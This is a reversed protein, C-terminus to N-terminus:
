VGDLDNNKQLRLAAAGRLLPKRRKAESEERKKAEQRQALKQKMLILQLRREAKITRLEEVKDRQDSREIQLNLMEDEIMLKSIQDELPAGDDYTLGKTVYTQNLLDTEPNTPLETISNKRKPTAGFGRAGKKSSHSEKTILRLEHRPEPITESTRLPYPLPPLRAETQDVRIKKPKPADKDRVNFM